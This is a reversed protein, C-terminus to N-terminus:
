YEMPNRGNIANGINQQERESLIDVLRMEGPKSHATGIPQDAQAFVDTANSDQYVDIPDPARRRDEIEM